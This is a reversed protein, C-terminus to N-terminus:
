GSRGGLLGRWLRNETGARMRQLNSRHTFLIFAAMVVTFLFLTGPARGTVALWVPAAAAAIMTGLGVYGTVVVVAAWTAVVVALMGPDLVAYAGLLTAMGKGGRFGHWLPYVHGVVAGAGIAVAVVERSVGPDLPVGPLTAPTLWVMPLVAKLVDILVVGLAFPVGQTRLANTGGANGSGLGRIDVGRLRGLLLSGVVSGCLYGILAKVLVEMM